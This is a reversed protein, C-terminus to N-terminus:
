DKGFLEHPPGSSYQRVQRTVEALSFPKQIIPLGYRQLFEQTVTGMTDGSIFIVRQAQRENTAALQQYLSLGGQGPMKVDLLIASYTREQLAVWAEEGNAAVDVQFGEQVLLQFLLERIGPEDDVVLLRQRQSAASPQNPGPFMAM